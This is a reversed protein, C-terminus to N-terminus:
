RVRPRFRERDGRAREAPDRAVQDRRDGTGYALVTLGDYHTDGDPFGAVVSVVPLGEGHAAQGAEVLDAYPGQATLLTVTPASIPMRIHHKELKSGDLMRRLQGAAEAAREAQDVQPNTRYCVSVDSAAAMEDSVKAHLDLDSARQKPFYHKLGKYRAKGIMM